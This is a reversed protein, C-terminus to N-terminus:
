EDTFMRAVYRQDPINSSPSYCCCSVYLVKAAFDCAPRNEDAPHVPVKLHEWKVSRGHLLRCRGIESSFVMSKSIFTNLSSFCNQSLELRLVNMNCM